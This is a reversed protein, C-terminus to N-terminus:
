TWLGDAADEDPGVPVDAVPRLLAAAQQETAAVVRTLFRTVVQRHPESLAAIEADLLVVLPASLRAVREVAAPDARVLSSRGDGPHPTRHVHGDRELRHLLATVGGSTLVLRSGIAGPTLAGHEALLGLTALENPAMGLRRGVAARHRNSALM